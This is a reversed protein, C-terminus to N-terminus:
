VDWRQEVEKEASATKGRPLGFFWRSCWRMRGGSRGRRKGGPLGGGLLPPASVPVWLAALRGLRYGGGRAM